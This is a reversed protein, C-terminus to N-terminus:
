IRACGLHLLAYLHHSLLEMKWIYDVEADLFHRREPRVRCFKTDSVDIDKEPTNTWSPVDGFLNPHYCKLKVLEM